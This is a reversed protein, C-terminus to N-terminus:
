DGRSDITIGGNVYAERRIYQIGLASLVATLAFDQGLEATAGTGLFAFNGGVTVSMANMAFAAVVEDGGRVLVWGHNGGKGGLGEVESGKSRHWEYKQGGLDFGFETGSSKLKQWFSAKIEELVVKKGSPLHVELSRSKVTVDGLAPSSDTPGSHLKLSAHPHILTKSSGSVALLPQGQVHGIDFSVLTIKKHNFLKFALPLSGAAPHFANSPIAWDEESSIFGKQLSSTDSLSASM